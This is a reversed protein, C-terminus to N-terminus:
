LIKIRHRDLYHHNTLQTSEYQQYATRWLEGGTAQLGAQGHIFNILAAVDQLFESQEDVMTMEIARWAHKRSFRVSDRKLAALIM